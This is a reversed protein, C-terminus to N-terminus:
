SAFPALVTSNGKEFMRGIAKEAEAPKFEHDAGGPCSTLEGVRVEGNIAYLDVRMFSFPKSLKEAICLIKALEPPESDSEDSGDNMLTMRLKNWRTDYFNQVHTGFRDTDVQIFGPVGHFCFIKYDKPVRRGDTSFM